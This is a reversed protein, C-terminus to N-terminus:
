EWVVLKLDLLNNQDENFPLVRIAFGHNGSHNCPVDGHFHSIGDEDTESFNLVFGEGETLQRDGYLKGIYAEVRIDSPELSGLKVKARITMDNGVYLELLTDAHVDIIEIQHWSELIKQKWEVLNRTRNFKDSHLKETREYCPIYAKTAYEDVMRSSMYKPCVIEMMELMMRAWDRAVKARDRKYFLPVIDQELLHYLAESEVLDWYDPDEYDEGAGIAWGIGPQYIDAWWGDLTSCNLAGNMAAKMGSTGSAELPRRPTNLWVDCGQVLHRAVYIDYDELFVVRNRVNDDAAFHVIDRIVKKGPDDQPHAKGAFILQVPMEPNNLIKALRETDRFLLNGRKYTAFRRAFGITLTEMDLVERAREVMSSSEGRNIMQNRLRRRAFTILRARMRERIRWLEESSIDRIRKWIESDRPNEMWKPGLYRDLIHSIERAIWSGAHVGNKVDIIPAEDDLFDSWLHHWMKRSVQAHLYSVGNVVSSLNIAMIAMNFDAKADSDAGGLAFFKKKDLGLTPWYDKFYREMLSPSFRDIGAPVPTHTTFVHSARAAESAEDFSLDEDAMLRRIRDLALFASHGENMHFVTAKIDLVELAKIGGIGLVIEQRIRTETDGGYLNETIRRDEPSNEVVNTDLLYLNIRGVVAQWIHVKVDNPGVRVTFEIPKEDDSRLLKIPTHFLNTEPYTEQQWGDANLYQKFYGKQYMLGIAVIPIGLDSAAKLHDGSLVGLGGSYVPICEHIGFEASFYAIRLDGHNQYVSNYWTRENRYVEFDLWVRELHSLFGEDESVETLRQQSLQSLMKVPNQGVDRWLQQDIRRFLDIAEHNWTWRLDYIIDRIRDLKPPLKPVVHFTHVRDIPM